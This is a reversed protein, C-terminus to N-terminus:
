SGRLTHDYISQLLESARSFSRDMEAKSIDTETKDLADDGVYPESVVSRRRPKRQLSAKTQVKGPTKMTEKLENRIETLLGWAQMNNLQGNRFQEDVETAM